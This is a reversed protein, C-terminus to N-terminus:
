QGAGKATLQDIGHLIASSEELNQKCAEDLPRLNYEREDENVAQQVYERCERLVAEMAANRALLPALLETVEKRAKEWPTGVPLQCLKNIYIDEIREALNDPDVISRCHEACRKAIIDACAEMVDLTNRDDEDEVDNIYDQCDNAALKTWDADSM